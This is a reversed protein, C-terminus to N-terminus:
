KWSIVNDRNVGKNAPVTPDVKRDPGASWVMIPSNAEFVVNNKADVGRALGNIGPRPSIPSSLDESINQLKYFVDRAKEDYNLDFTLIYPSGWPDRYILDTGVGPSRTDTVMNANLYPNRRPNKVHGFNVTHTGDAYTEKDLLTAMVESNDLRGIFSTYMAPPAFSSNTRLFDTGYTFDEKNAAAVYMANSSVPFRNNEAEYGRIATMIQTIQLQANAVQARLKARHLVPLLMSALIAIISIVVLLEVLTFAVQPRLPSPLARLASRPGDARRLTPDPVTHHFAFKM